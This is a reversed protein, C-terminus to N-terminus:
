RRSRKPALALYFQRMKAPDGSVDAGEGVVKGKYKKKRYHFSGKTHVPDVPDTLPNERVALGLKRALAIIRLMDAPNSESVHVHKGHGGIAKVPIGNDFGGLPDHFLEEVSFGGSTPVPGGPIMRPQVPSVSGRPPGAALLADLLDEGGMVAQTIRNPGGKNPVRGEQMNNWAEDQQDPNPPTQDYRGGSSALRAIANQISRQPDAPREFKTIIQRIADAGTRGRAYPAMKSLAYRIGQPSWAWSDAQAQRGRFRAPLAGQAYLQFPGYSGGGALDGIDATGPRNVLGGEGRAVSLVARPDLGM